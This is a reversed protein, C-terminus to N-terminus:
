GREQGKWFFLTAARQGIYLALPFILFFFVHQAGHPNIRIANPLGHKFAMENRQNGNEHDECCTDPSDQWGMRHTLWEHSVIGMGNLMSHPPPSPGGSDCKHEM